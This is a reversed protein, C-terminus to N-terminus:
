FEYTITNNSEFIMKISVRHLVFNLPLTLPDSDGAPHPRPVVSLPISM